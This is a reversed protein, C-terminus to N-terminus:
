SLFGVLHRFLDEHLHFHNLILILTSISLLSMKLITLYKSIVRFEGSIKIILDMLGIFGLLILFIKWSSTLLGFFIWVSNGKEIGSFKRYKELKEKKYDKETPNRKAIKKFSETWEKIKIFDFFNSIYNLNALFVFLGFIYFLHGM